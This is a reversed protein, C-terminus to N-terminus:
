QQDIPALDTAFVVPESVPVSADKHLPVDNGGADQSVADVNLTFSTFTTGAPVSAQVSFGDASPALVVAPDSATWAPM